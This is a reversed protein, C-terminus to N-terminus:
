PSPYLGRFVREAVSDNLFFDNLLQDVQEASLPPERLMEHTMVLTTDTSLGEEELLERVLCKAQVLQKVLLGLVVASLETLAVSEGDLEAFKAITSLSVDAEQMISSLSLDLLAHAAIMASDLDLGHAMLTAPITSRSLTVVGCYHHAWMPPAGALQLAKQADDIDTTTILQFAPVFRHNFTSDFVPLM